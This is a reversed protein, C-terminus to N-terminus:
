FYITWESKTTKPHYLKCENYTVAPLHLHLDKAEINLSKALVENKVFYMNLDDNQMICSYDFKKSMNIGATFSFGYFTDGQWTHEPNYQITVSDSKSFAPNFEAVILSPTYKSLVEDLIYIDNGDLDICFLDFETPCNYKELLELVNEKTIFHEHVEKNGRNDGDILIHSYGNEIFYRTNSLHFGDWAGLEVLFKTPSGINNLINEIYSEENSQSYKKWKEPHTTAKSIDNLRHIWNM